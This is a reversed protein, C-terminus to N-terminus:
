VRRESWMCTSKGHDIHAIVAWNRVHSMPIDALNPITKRLTKVVEQSSSGRRHLSLRSRLGCPRTLNTWISRGASGYAGSRSWWLGLM